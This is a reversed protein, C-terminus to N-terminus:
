GLNKNTLTVRTVTIQRNGSADVGTVIVRTRVHHLKRVLSRGRRSLPIKLERKQGAKIRFRASGLAIRRPATVRAAGAKLKAVTELRVNGHCGLTESLPCGLSITVLPQRRKSSTPQAVALKPGSSDRSGAGGGGAPTGAATTAFTRDPGNTTGRANAAVLRYHYLTGARLGSVPVSVAQPTGGAAIMRSGSAKGYDTTTGYEAVYSTATGVTNVTGALNAASSGVSGAAGTAVEPDLTVKGIRNGYYETFWLNGDPGATIEFPADSIGASFETVVGAPTIRGIRRGSSGGYEAFWLNGDPGVTIGVPGADKSIGTRFETVVGAPTIRGVANDTQETFWMNGDPGAVIRAPQSAATVGAPFETVVGGPTTRSVPNDHFRLDTFWINGDPGTAIGLPMIAAPGPGAFFESFVGATTIRGIKSAGFETFWLAGDPGSTIGEPQGAVTFETAVPAPTLSIRGIRNGAEETFWLRGDPGTTIEAPQSGASIGSGTSWDDIRNDSLRVRGFRSARNEVFWINGDPGATIGQPLSAPILSPLETISTAGAPAASAAIIALALVPLLLPRKMRRVTLPGNAIPM